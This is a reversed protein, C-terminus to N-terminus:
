GILTTLFGGLLPPLGALQAPTPAVALHHNTTCGRPAPIGNLRDAMWALATPAATVALSVHEGLLYRDYTVPTGGDCYRALTADAVEVPVVEDTAAHYAFLPARPAGAGLKLERFGDVVAPLAVFDRWPISLLDDFNTFAYKALNGTDCLSLSHALVAEGRPTLYRRFQAALAPSARMIGPTVSVMLGAWPGGNIKKIIELPDTAFGGVAVGRLDIDPAYTPQLEAAWGSALSGGSYGWLASRTTRGPLGLKAFSRAARLSDLVAFGPQRAAGWEGRPGQYDPLVVVNGASLAAYILPLEIQNLVAASGSGQRLMYSPACHPAVADTPVQYSVLTRPRTGGPAILATTVTSMPLGNRDTTRYLLQWTETRKPLVSIFALSVSRSRLITGPATSKWGAPPTYFPDDQPPVPDTRAVNTTVAGPEASQAPAPASVLCTALVSAGCAALTTARRGIKM